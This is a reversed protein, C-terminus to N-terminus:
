LRMRLSDPHRSDRDGATGLRRRGCPYGTAHRKAVLDHFFDRTVLGHVLSAAACYQREVCVGAHLMVTVLFTAQRETFGFGSLRQVRDAFTM